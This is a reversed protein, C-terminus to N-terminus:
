DLGIEIPGLRLRASLPSLALLYAAAKGEGDRTVYFTSTAGLPRHHGRGPDRRAGDAIRAPANGVRKEPGNSAFKGWARETALWILMGGFVILAAVALWGYIGATVGLGLAVVPIIMALYFPGTFRCHTRGCRRDSLICATGMWALAIIWIAIRLRAEVLLGAILAGHPLWWALVSTRISGVWDASRNAENAM